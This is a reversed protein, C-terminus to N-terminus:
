TLVSDLLRFDEFRRLMGVARGENYVMLWTALLMVFVGMQSFSSLSDLTLFLVSRDLLLSFHSVLSVCISGCAGGAAGAAAGVPGRYGLNEYTRVRM